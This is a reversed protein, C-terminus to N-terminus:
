SNVKKVTRELYGFTFSGPLSYAGGYQESLQAIGNVFDSAWVYYRQGKVLHERTEIAEVWEGCRFRVEDTAM